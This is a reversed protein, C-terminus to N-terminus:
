ADRADHDHVTALFRRKEVHSCVMDQPNRGYRTLGSVKVIIVGEDVLQLLHQFKETALDAQQAAFVHDAVFVTGYLKNANRLTPILGHETDIDFIAAEISWKVVAAHIREATGEFLRNM